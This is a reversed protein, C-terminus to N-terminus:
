RAAHNATTDTETAATNLRPGRLAQCLQLDHDIRSAIAICKEPVIALNHRALAGRDEPSAEGKLLVLFPGNHQKILDGIEEAFRTNETNFTSVLRIFRVESPFFPIVYSTPKRGIMLVVTETPAALPPTTVGFWENGWKLHGRGPAKVSVIVLACLSGGLVLKATQHLSFRDILWFIAVGTLVELPFVYRHYSFMVLWLPFSLLLFLVIVRGGREPMVAQTRWGRDNYNREKIAQVGHTLLATLALVVLVAWRADRLPLPFSITQPSLWYFPYLCAEFVDKPKWQSYLNDWNSLPSYPSHFIKNFFPFLPNDFKEWMRWMWLGAASAIGTVVGLSLSVLAPILAQQFVVMLFVTAFLAIVYIMNVYKLGAALGLFLGSLYFDRWRLPGESKRVLVLLGGLVFLSTINDGNTTGLLTLSAPAYIGTAALLLSLALKNLVALKKLLSLSFLFALFFNLGHIAGLVFGTGKPSLTQVLCYFPLNLVPNLFTQIQAPLVDYQLRHHVLAYATYFHYNRQDFNVDQGIWLSSFGFVLEGVIFVSVIAANDVSLIKHRM